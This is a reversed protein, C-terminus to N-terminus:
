GLRLCLLRGIYSPDFLRGPSPSTFSGVLVLLGGLMGSYCPIQLLWFRPPCPWRWMLDLAPLWLFLLRSWLGLLLCLRPLALLPCSPLGAELVALTWYLFAGVYLGALSLNLLWGPRSSWWASRLPWPASCVYALSVPVCGRLRDCSAVPDSQRSSLVM